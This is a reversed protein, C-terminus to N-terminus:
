ISPSITQVQEIRELFKIYKRRLFFTNNQYINFFKLTESNKYILLSWCNRLKDKIITYSKLKLELVIGQLFSKTGRISINLTTKTHKPLSISGDGDFYGLIFSKRYKKPINPIINTMTTSKRETLGYSCLDNFLNLNFLSLRCHNKPQNNHTMATTLHLIKNSCGIENKLKELIVRDKSHLTISLGFSNNGNNQLCGDAAIFGLFYAKLNSDIAKFYRVNGQNVVYSYGNKNLFQATSIPILKLIKAIETPKLGQKALELIEKKFDTPKNNMINM